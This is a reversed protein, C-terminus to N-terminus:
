YHIQHFFERKVNENIRGEKMWSNIMTTDVKDDYRSFLYQISKQYLEELRVKIEIVDRASKINPEAQHYFVRFNGVTTNCTQFISWAEKRQEEVLKNGSKIEMVTIVISVLTLLFSGIAVGFLFRERFNWAIKKM